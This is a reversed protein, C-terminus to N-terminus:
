QREPAGCLPPAPSRLRCGAAPHGPRRQGPEGAHRGRVRRDRGPALDRLAAVFADVLPESVPRPAAASWSPRRGKATDAYLTFQSVVLLPADTDAASREDALIRLTWIKAALKAATAATDTHTVEVFVLLGPRDLAGVIEGAVQVSASAVRQVVSRMLAGVTRQGRRDVRRCPHKGSGSGGSRKAPSGVCSRTSRHLCGTSTAIRVIEGNLYDTEISGTGRSLSQWSSSGLGTHETGTRTRLRVRRGWGGGREDGTVAIGARPSCRGRRRWPRRRVWRGRASRRGPGGARQRPESLLKRYKWAMVDEPLAIDFTAKRWDSAVEALLSRDASEYRAAPVRGLHLIGSMPVGRIIVEGPELHVAPMWICVGFVRRVYRAALAEASVGNTALFVPLLEGASGIVTGDDAHVPADAVDPLVDLVQQTKTSVVIVDDARLIVDAISGVATVPLTIDERPTRLRIGNRQLATLHEGRAILVTPLGAQVLRAGLGGGIAGAGIIVYRRM